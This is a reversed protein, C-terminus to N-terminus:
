GHGRTSRSAPMQGSTRYTGHGTEHITSLRAQGTCKQHATQLIEGQRTQYGQLQGVDPISVHCTQGRSFTTGSARRKVALSAGRVAAASCDGLRTSAPFGFLCPKSVSCPPILNAFSTGVGRLTHVHNNPHWGDTRLIGPTFMSIFCLFLTPITM